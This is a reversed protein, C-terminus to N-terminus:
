KRRVRAPGFVFETSDGTREEMSLKQLDGRQNLSITLKSFPVQNPHKPKFIFSDSALKEIEYDQSLKETDMKLWANMSQFRTADASEGIQNLRFTQTRLEQGEGSTIKVEDKGIEVTLPAPKTIKWILINPQSVRLQGESHLITPIDKLRKSMKFDVTLEKIDQYFKFTKSLEEKSVSVNTVSPAAQIVGFTLWGTGLMSLGLIAVLVMLFRM